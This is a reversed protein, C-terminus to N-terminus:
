QAPPAIAGLDLGNVSVKGDPSYVIAWSSTGDAETKAMGKAAVIGAIAQAAQPDTQAAEQLKAMVADLGKMKIDVKGGKPGLMTMEMGGTMSITYAPATITTPPLTINVTGNPMAAAALAPNVDPSIPPDKSLDMKDIFLRAPADADFGSAGFGFSLASPILDISWPPALGAPIGLGAVEFTETARGDKTFGAAEIGIKASQATFNGFPSQVALGEFTENGSMTEMVPLAALLSKKLDAQDKIIADKNPHSVFWAILDMVARQRVGTGNTQYGIKQAAFSGGGAAPNGGELSWTGQLNEASISAVVDAVGADRKTATSDSLYKGITYAVNTKAGTGPDVITETLSGNGMESHTKTFGRLEEDFTGTWESTGSKFDFTLAPSSMSFNLPASSKTEWTGDGNAHATLVFPSLAVKTDPLNGKNIYPTIDITIQLDDGAPAVTVVGPESGLYTQLSKQVSAADEAAIAATSATALLLAIATSYIPKM